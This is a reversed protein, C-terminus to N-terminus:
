RIVKTTEYGDMGPMNCDLLILSYKSRSNSEADDKVMQFAQEGSFATECYISSDLGLSYKLIIKLADINFSQDDVILIRKDFSPM